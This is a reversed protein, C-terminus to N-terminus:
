QVAQIRAVLSDGWLETFRTWSQEARARFPRVDPRLVTMGGREFEAVLRREEEEIIRRNYEGGERFAGTLTEQDEPSLTNWLRQGMYPLIAGIMHGTLVLYKCPEHFGTAKITPLPNEQGDVVGARLAVYVNSFTMTTPLAGLVKAAEVFMISGPVRLKITGFQEPTTAPRDRLTVQRVGQLWVDMIHRKSLRESERIMERGIPGRVTRRFHDVDRFMYPAELASLPPYFEAFDGPGTMALERDSEVITAFQNAIPTAAKVTLLIRGGTREELLRSVHMLARHQPQGAPASHPLLLRMGDEGGSSCGALLLALCGAWRRATALRRRM